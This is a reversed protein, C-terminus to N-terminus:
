GCYGKWSYLRNNAATVGCDSEKGPLLPKMRKWEGESLLKRTMKRKRREGYLRITLV